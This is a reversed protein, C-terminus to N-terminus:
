DEETKKFKVGCYEYVMEQYEELTMEGDTFRQYEDILAEALEPLRKKMGWGYQEYMVKIPISLLLTIATQTAEEVADQKIRDIDSKRMSIIPDRAMPFGTTKAQRRREARNM